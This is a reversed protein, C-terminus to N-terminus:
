YKPDRYKAAHGLRELLAQADKFQKKAENVIDTTKKSMNSKADSTTDLGDGPPSDQLECGCAGSVDAHADLEAFDNQM